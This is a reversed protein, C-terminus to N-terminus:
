DINEYIYFIKFPQSKICDSKHNQSFGFGNTVLGFERYENSFAQMWVCECIRVNNPWDYVEEFLKM